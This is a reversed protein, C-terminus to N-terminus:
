HRARRWFAIREWREGADWLALAFLLLVGGFGFLRGTTMVGTSDYTLSVHKASPVVIMYSPTARYPGTGGNVRWGPFYTTAVMVPVGPNSVDFSIKGNSEVINSVSNSPLPQPTVLGERAVPWDKPGNPSYAVIGVQKSMEFKEMFDQWSMQNPPEVRNPQNELPYVTAADAIRWIRLEHSQGVLSLDKISTAQTVGAKDYTLYYKVGMTKARAIGPGLDYQFFPITPMPHQEIKSLLSSTGLAIPYNL